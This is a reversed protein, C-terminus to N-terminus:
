FPPPTQEIHCGCKTDTLDKGEDITEFENLCIECIVTIIAPNTIHIDSEIDPDYNENYYDANGAYFISMIFERM